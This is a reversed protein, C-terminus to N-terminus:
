SRDQGHVPGISRTCIIPIWWASLDIAGEDPTLGQEADDGSCADNRNKGIVKELKKISGTRVARQSSLGSRSRKLKNTAELSQLYNWDLAGDHSGLGLGPLSAIWEETATVIPSLGIASDNESSPFQTSLTPVGGRITLGRPNQPQAPRPLEEVLPLHLSSAFPGQELPNMRPSASVPRSNRKDKISRMLSGTAFDPPVQFESPSSSPTSAYAPKKTAKHSRVQDGSTWSARGAAQEQAEKANRVLRDSMNGVSAGDEGSKKREIDYFESAETPSEPDEEHKAKKAFVHAKIKPRGIAPMSLLKGAGGIDPISSDSSTASDNTALAVDATSGTAKPPLIPSELYRRYQPRGYSSPRPRNNRPLVQLVPHWDQFLEAATFRM